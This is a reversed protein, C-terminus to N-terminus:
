QQAFVASRDIGRERAEDESIGLPGVSGAVAVDKGHASQKALRAAAANIEHTKVGFGFRELRVGNAGFTNTEILQAGAEVYADHVDRVRDPESLCLEELCRELPVGSDLLMTGMAGDGCVLRTQLQDLLDM